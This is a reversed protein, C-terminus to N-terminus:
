AVIYTLFTLHWVQSLCMSLPFYPLIRNSCFGCFFHVIHAVSDVIITDISLREHWYEFQVIHFSQFYCSSDFYWNGIIISLINLHSKLSLKKLSKRWILLTCHANQPHLLFINGITNHDRLFGTWSTMKWVLLMIWFGSWLKKEIQLNSIWHFWKMNLRGQHGNMEECTLLSKEREHKYNGFDSCSWVTRIWISNYSLTGPTYKDHSFCDWNISLCVGM